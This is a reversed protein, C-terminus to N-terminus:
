IATNTVAGPKDARKELLYSRSSAPINNGRVLSRSKLPNGLQTQSFVIRYVLNVLSVLMIGLMALFDNECMLFIQNLTCLFTQAALNVRFYFSIFLLKVAAKSLQFTPAQPIWPYGPAEVTDLWGGSRIGGGM